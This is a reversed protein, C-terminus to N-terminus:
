KKICIINQSQSFFYLIYAIVDVTWGNGLMKKAQSESVILVNDKYFYDDDVTQLRCVEKLTYNRYPFNKNYFDIYKGHELPTLVNDKAVTTLCNSKNTNTSKVELCQVYKLDKASDSRKGQANLKRGIISAKNWGKDKELIDQLYIKSDPINKDFPINTWYLRVRNQASLLSSNIVIPKRGITKNFIKEWKKSMYVNELLFYINPNKKKLQRYINIYEWFLFSQGEFIMGEKKLKLYQRLTTIEIKDTTIMGRQKGIASLDTCPSGGILLDIHPLNNININNVNGLHITNEFKTQSLKIAHKDVESAFYNDVKAGIRNLAIQGCSMGDFLSLINM